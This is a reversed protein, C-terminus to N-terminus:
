LSSFLSSVNVNWADRVARSKGNMAAHKWTKHGDDLFLAVYNADLAIKFNDYMKYENYLGIELASDLDTLYMNEVGVGGQNPAVWVDGNGSRISARNLKKLIEHDNTGGIYNIRFTHKLDEVFSFDKVRLGVGWTGAM